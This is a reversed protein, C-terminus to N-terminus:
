KQVLHGDRRLRFGPGDAQLKQASAVLNSENLWVLFTKRDVPKRCADIAIGARRTSIRNGHERVLGIVAELDM